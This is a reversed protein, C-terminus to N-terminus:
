QEANGVGVRKRKIRYKVQRGGARHDRVKTSINRREYLGKQPIDAPHRHTPAIGYEKKGNEEAGNGGRNGTKKSSM